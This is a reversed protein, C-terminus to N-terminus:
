APPGAGFDLCPARAQAKMSDVTSEPKAAGRRMLEKKTKKDPVQACAPVPAHAPPPVRAPRQSPSQAPEGSGRVALHQQAARHDEAPLGQRGHAHQHGGVQLRPGIRLRSRARQAQRRHVKRVKQLKLLVEPSITHFRDFTFTYVARAPADSTLLRARPLRRSPGSKNVVASFKERMVGRSFELLAHPVV